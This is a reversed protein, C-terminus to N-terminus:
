SVLALPSFPNKQESLELPAFDAGMVWAHFRLESGDRRCGLQLRAALGRRRLMWVLALSQELCRMAKFHFHRGRGVAKVIAATLVPDARRAPRTVAGTSMARQLLKQRGLPIRILVFAQLLRCWAEM